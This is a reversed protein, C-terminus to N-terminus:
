MVDLDDNYIIELGPTYRFLIDFPRTSPKKNFPLRTRGSIEVDDYFKKFEEFGSFKNEQPIVPLGGATYKHCKALYSSGANIVPVNLFSRALSHDHLFFFPLVKKDPKQNEVVSYKITSFQTTNMFFEPGHSFQGSMMITGQDFHDFMHMHAAMQPSTVYFKKQYELALGSDLFTILDFDIVQHRISHKQCLDSLGALDFMNSGQNYSFSVVHFKSTDGQTGALWAQIMAQSDVGGSCCLVYPPPLTAMINQVTYRAAEVPILDNDPQKIRVRTKKNTNPYFTTEIWSMTWPDHVAVPLDNMSGGNVWPANLCPFGLRSNWSAAM